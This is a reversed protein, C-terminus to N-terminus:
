GTSWRCSVRAQVQQTYSRFTTSLPSSPGGEDARIAAEIYGQPDRVFRMAPSQMVARAVAEASPQIIAGDRSAFVCQLDRAIGSMGSVLQFLPSAVNLRLQIGEIRDGEFWIQVDHSKEDGWIRLDPAWSKKEPLLASLTQFLRPQKEASIDLKIADLQERTMRIAEVDRFRAAYSPIFDLTFQWLAM